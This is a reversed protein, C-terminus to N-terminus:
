LHSPASNGKSIPKPSHQRKLPSPPTNYEQSPKSSHQRKLPSPATNGKSIPKPSHQRKLHAQPQTAKQSPSPATNGKVGSNIERWCAFETVKCRPVNPWHPDDLITRHLDLYRTPTGKKSFGCSAAILRNEYM